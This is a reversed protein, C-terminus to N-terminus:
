DYLHTKTELILKVVQAVNPDFKLIGADAHLKSTRKYNNSKTVKQKSLHQLAIKM